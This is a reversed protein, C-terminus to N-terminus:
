KDVKGVPFLYIAFENVGDLKLLEDLYEQDYAGIACTGCGIAEVALYMNQGAHGADLAIVKHSDLGYRWEMRYPITSWIFTVASSGAFDQNFAAKVMKEKLNPTKFELLLEHTLPLYRYVGEELGEVNFVALYTELAHRCGASPVVRFAYAGALRRLGQTAWLLFSLEKLSLSNGKFNRRSIRNKMAESLKIDYEEDWDAYILEIRKKGLDYPKEIPPVEVQLSQDTQSFDIEKRISDKLFNRYQIIKEKDNM